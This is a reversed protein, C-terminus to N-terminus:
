IWRSDFCMKRMVAELFSWEVRDYEKSMDLKVVMYGEKGGCGQMCLKCHRM